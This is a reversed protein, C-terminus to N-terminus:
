LMSQFIDMMLVVGVGILIFFTMTTMAMAFLLMDVVQVLDQMYFQDAQM